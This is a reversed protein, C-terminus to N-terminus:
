PRRTENEHKASESENQVTDFADPGMKMNQVGFENRATSLADPTTEKNQAGLSIKSMVSPTSNQKCIKCKRVGKRCYQPRRTGNEHKARGSENEVFGLADFETQM